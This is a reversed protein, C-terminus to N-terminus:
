PHDAYGGGFRSNICSHRYPSVLTLNRALEGRKRGRPAQKQAKARAVPASM